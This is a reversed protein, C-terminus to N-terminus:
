ARSRGRSLAAAVKTGGPGGRGPFRPGRPYVPLVDGSRFSNEHDARDDEADDRSKCPTQQHGAAVFIPKMAVKASPTAPATTPHSTKV